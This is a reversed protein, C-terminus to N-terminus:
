NYSHSQQNPNFLKELEPGPGNEFKHRFTCNAKEIKEHMLCGSGNIGFIHQFSDEQPLGIDRSSLRKHKKGSKDKKNKSM